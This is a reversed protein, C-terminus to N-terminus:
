TFKARETTKIWGAPYAETTTLDRTEVLSKFDDLSRRLWRRMIGFRVGLREWVGEPEYEFKVTVRTADTRIVQFRVYGANPTGEESRWAIHRGFLEDVVCAFWEKRRGAYSVIWYSHMDDLQLAVHVGRVHGAFDELRQWRRFAEGITIDVDVSETITAM